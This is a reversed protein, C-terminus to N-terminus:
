GNDVEVKIIRANDIVDQMATHAKHRSGYQANALAQYIGYEANFEDDEGCRSMGVTGDKLVVTTIKKAENIVVSGIDEFMKAHKKCIPNLTSIRGNADISWSITYDSILKDSM